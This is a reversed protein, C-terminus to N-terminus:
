FNFRVVPPEDLDANGTFLEDLKDLVLASDLNVGSLAIVAIEEQENQRLTNMDNTTLEGGTSQLNPVFKSRFM